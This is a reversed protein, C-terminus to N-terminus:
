SCRLKKLWNEVDQPLLTGVSLAPSMWNLCARHFPAISAPDYILWTHGPKPTPPPDVTEYYTSAEPVGVGICVRTFDPQGPCFDVCGAQRVLFPVGLDAAAGCLPKLLRSERAALARARLREVELSIRHLAAQTFLSAATLPGSTEFHSSDLYLPEFLETRPDRPVGPWILQFVTIGMTNARDLEDLVWGSKLVQGTYFLVVLDCDAMRHWLREQFVDGQRISHTDIFPDFSSADLQHYLQTAAAAAEDRKYSLFIRRRSRLLRLSELILATLPALSGGAPIEMGNIPHLAQPAQLHFDVLSPVVPIVTNGAATQRAVVEDFSPDFNSGGFYVTVRPANGLMKDTEVGAFFRLTLDPDIGREAVADTVSKVLQSTDGRGAADIIGVQYHVQSIM